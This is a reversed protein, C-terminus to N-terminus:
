VVGSRRVDCVAPLARACCALGQERGGKLHNLLASLFRSVSVDFNFLRNSATMCCSGVRSPILCAVGTSASVLSLFYMLSANFVSCSLLTKGAFLLLNMSAYPTCPCSQLSRSSLSPKSNSTLKMIHAYPEHVLERILPVLTSSSMALGVELGLDVSNLLRCDLLVVQPRPVPARLEPTSFLM